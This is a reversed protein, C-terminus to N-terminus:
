SSIVHSISRWSRSSDRVWQASQMTDGAAHGDDVANVGGAIEDRWGHHGDDSRLEGHEETPEQVPLLLLQWLSTRGRCHSRLDEGTHKTENKRGTAVDGHEDVGVGPGEVRRGHQDPDSCCTFAEGGVGSGSYDSFRDLSGVAVRNLVFQM